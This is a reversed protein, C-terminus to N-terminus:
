TSIAIHGTIVVVVVPLRAFQYVGRCPTPREQELRTEAHDGRTLRLERHAAGQDRAQAVGPSHKRARNPGRDEVVPLLQLRLWGEEQRRRSSLIRCMTYSQGKRAGPYRHWAASFGYQPAAWPLTPGAPEPPAELSRHPTDSRRPGQRGRAPVPHQTRCRVPLTSTRSVPIGSAGFGRM